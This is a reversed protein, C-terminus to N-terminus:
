CKDNSTVTLCDAFSKSPPPLHSFTKPVEITELHCQMEKLTGITKKKWWMRWMEEVTILAVPQASTILDTM